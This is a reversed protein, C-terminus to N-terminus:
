ARAFFHPFYYKWITLNLAFCYWRGDMILFRPRKGSLYTGPSMEHTNHSHIRVQQQRESPEVTSWQAGHHRTRPWVSSLLGVEWEGEFVEVGMAAASQSLSGLICRKLWSVGPDAATLWTRLQSHLKQVYVPPHSPPRQSSGQSQMHSWRQANM